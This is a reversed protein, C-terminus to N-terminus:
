IKQKRHGRSSGSINECNRQSLNKFNEVSRKLSITAYIM